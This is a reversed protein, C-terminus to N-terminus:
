SLIASEFATKADGGEGPYDSVSALKVQQSSMEVAKEVVDLDDNAMLRAVKEEHSLEPDLNKTDMVSALKEVRERREFYAVKEKLASNESSLARLTPGVQSLVEGVKESALKIM